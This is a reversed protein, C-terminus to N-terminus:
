RCQAPPGAALLENERDRGRCALRRATKPCRKPPRSQFGGLANASARGDDDGHDGYDRRHPRTSARRASGRGGARRPSAGRGCGDRGCGSILAVACSSREKTSLAATSTSLSVTSTSTISRGLLLPQLVAD